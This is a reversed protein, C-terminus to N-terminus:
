DDGRGPEEDGEEAPTIVAESEPPMVALPIFGIKGQDYTVALSIGDHHHAVQQHTDRFVLM